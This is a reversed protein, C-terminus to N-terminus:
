TIALPDLYWLTHTVSFSNRTPQTSGFTDDTIYFKGIPVGTQGAFRGLLNLGILLPVGTIIPTEQADALDLIWRAMRSNYRITFTYQVGSLGVRFTYWASATGLPLSVIEQGNDLNANPGAM